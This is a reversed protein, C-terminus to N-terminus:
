KGDLPGRKLHLERKEAIMAEAVTTNRLLGLIKMELFFRHKVIGLPVIM